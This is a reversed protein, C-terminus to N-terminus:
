QGQHSYTTFHLKIDSIGDTLLSLGLVPDAHLGAGPIILLWDSNWVSRGILRSDYQIESDDAQPNGDDHYIRFDGHRRLEGFGGDVGDLSPIFGPSTLNASNTVFPTPIRREEINWM